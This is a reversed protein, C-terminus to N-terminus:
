KKVIPKKRGFSLFSFSITTFFNIELFSDLGHTQKKKKLTPTRVLKHAGQSIGHAKFNIIM